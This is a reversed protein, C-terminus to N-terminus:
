PTVGGLVLVLGPGFEREGSVGTAAGQPWPVYLICPGTVWNWSVLSGLGPKGHPYPLILTSGPDRQGGGNM